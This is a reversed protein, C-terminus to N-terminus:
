IQAATKGHLISPTSRFVVGPQGLGLLAM